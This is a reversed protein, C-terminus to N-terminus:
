YDFYSREVCRIIENFSFTLVLIILIVAYLDPTRLLFTANAIVKGLGAEAALVEGVLIGILSYMLCLRVGSMISPAASRVIVKSLVQLPNAGLSKAVMIHERKVSKLGSITNIILPFVGAVIGLAIKSLEGIGLLLLFMPYLAVVPISYAVYVLPEFTARTFRYFGIVFGVVIGVVLNVSFSVILEHLTAFLNDYFGVGGFVIKNLTGSNTLMPVLSLIVDSLVPVTFKNVIGVSPLIQWLSAVVVLVLVRGCYVSGLLGRL